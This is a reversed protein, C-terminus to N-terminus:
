ILFVQHQIIVDYDILPPKYYTYNQVEREVEFVFFTNMIYVTVFTLEVNTLELTNITSTDDVSQLMFSENHCCNGKKLSSDSYKKECHSVKKEKGGCCEHTNEKVEEPKMEKMMDCEDAKGFFGVNEIEGGCFHMDMSFGISSFLM